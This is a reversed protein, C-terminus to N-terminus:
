SNNHLRGCFPTDEQRFMVCYEKKPYELFPNLFSSHRL